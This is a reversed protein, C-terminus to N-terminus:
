ITIVKHILQLALLWSNTITMTLCLETINYMQPNFYIYRTVCINMLNLEVAHGCFIVGTSSLDFQKDFRWFLLDSLFKRTHLYLARFNAGYRGVSTFSNNIGEFSSDAESFNTVVNRNALLFFSILWLDQAQTHSESSRVIVVIIPNLHWQTFQNHLGFLSITLPYVSVFHHMCM